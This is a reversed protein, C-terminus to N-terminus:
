NKTLILGFSKFDFITAWLIHSSIYNEFVKEYYGIAWQAFIGGIQDCQNLAVTKELLYKAPQTRLLPFLIPLSELSKTVNPLKNEIPGVKECFIDNIKNRRFLPNPQM